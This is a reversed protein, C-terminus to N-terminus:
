RKARRITPIRTPVTEFTEPHPPHYDSRRWFGQGGLRTWVPIAGLVGAVFGGVHAWYAVGGGTANASVGGFLQLAMWAGLVLYAPLTLRRFIVVLILLVDVKAKPYLVLYAGMVGAIAGSAGVVPVMSNVDSIYHTASAAFGCLIYFIAFKVHGMADEINDGFIWLFLMNGGLHMLGGHLFMSTLATYYDVGANVEAPVMAWTDFFAGLRAQDALLPAYLAFVIINIAMLTWTVYPVTGPPNHDKIPFM